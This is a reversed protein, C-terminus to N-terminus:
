INDKILSFNTVNDMRWNLKSMDLTGSIEVEIGDRHADCAMRYHSDSLNVMIKRQKGEFITYLRIKKFEDYRSTSKELYYIIGRLTVDKFLIKDHYIKSLQEIVSFHNICMNIQQTQGTQNVLSSAYRITTSVSSEETKPCMKLLADCMNATIGTEYANESIKSLQNKKKVVSDVQSIAIGIRDIIKHEFPFVYCGELATQETGEEIVQVDINLIFSGKETQALKFKDLYNKALNSPKYCIPRALQEACASYLILDKLGEMCSAAYDIPLKGDSTSESIFRFELRDVFTTNINKVVSEESCQEEEALIEIVNQLIPYFDDYNESAPIALTKPFSNDNTYVMLNRNAFNYNRIWNNLQLYRDISLATINYFDPIYVKM